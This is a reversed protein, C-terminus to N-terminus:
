AGISKLIRYEDLAEEMLCADTPYQYSKKGIKQYRETGRGLLLILTKGKTGAAMAVAKRVAEQREKVCSCACGIREVYKRIEASIVEEGEMGPDDSTIWVYDSFLGALIGLEKRRNFAKDGPCGFVTIINSYSPYEQFVADYIKEFSLRNHAFDVIGCIKGDISFFTEMRGPVHVSALAEQMCSVPVHLAYGAAIAAMANEINFKGRMGLSFREEFRDCVVDFTIKGYETHINCCRLDALPHQGFTIIRGSKRAAKMIQEAYDSDLNVCATETQRFISLKSSFYDQFDEHEHPSIHDESINLFIGVQFKLEQVRRYKLAQSSVEMTVHSLGSKKTNALIEHLIPAEPTTMVADRYQIGDYNAVTSILGTKPNGQKTQWADLMAKLYWATTTKGKTGTIGTLVPCGPEYGFFVASIVAMVKRIDHVIWGGIGEQIEYPIESIYAICGKNAADKLYERRFAAGKCIFVTNESVERSDCTVWHVIEKEEPMNGTTMCLLGRQKLIRGVDGITMM